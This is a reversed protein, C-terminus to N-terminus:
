EGAEVCHSGFENSLHIGAFLITLSAAAILCIATIANRFKRPM